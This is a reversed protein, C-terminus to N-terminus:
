GCPEGGQCSPSTAAQSARRGDAAQYTPLGDEGAPVNDMTPDDPHATLYKSQARGPYSPARHRDPRTGHVGARACLRSTPGRSTCTDAVEMRDCGDDALPHRGCQYCRLLRVPDPEVRVLPAAPRRDRRRAGGSERARQVAGRQHRASGDLRLHLASRRPRAHEGTERRDAAAPGPRAQGQDPGPAASLGAVRRPIGRDAQRFEPAAEQGAGTRPRAFAGLTLGAAHPLAPFRAARETRHEWTEGPAIRGLWVDGKWDLM